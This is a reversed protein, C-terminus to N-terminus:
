KRRGPKRLGPKKKRKKKKDSEALAVKAAEKSRRLLEVDIIAQNVELQTPCQGLMRMANSIETAPIKGKRGTCIDSLAFAEALATLKEESYTQKNTPNGSTSKKEAAGTSPELLNVDVFFLTNLPTCKFIHHTM